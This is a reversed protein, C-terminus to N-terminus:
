TIGCIICWLTNIYILSNPEFGLDLKPKMLGLRIKTKNNFELEIYKILVLKILCSIKFKIM